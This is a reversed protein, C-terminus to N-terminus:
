CNELNEESKHPWGNIPLNVGLRQIRAILNNRERETKAKPLYDYYERVRLKDGLM